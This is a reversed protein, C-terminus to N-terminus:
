NGRAHGRGDRGGRSRVDFCSTEEPGETAMATDAYEQAKPDDRRRKSDGTVTAAVASTSEAADAKAKREAEKDIQSRFPDVAEQTATAGAAAATASMPTGRVPEGRKPTSPMPAPAVKARAWSPSKAGGRAQTQKDQPVVTYGAQYRQLHDGAYQGDCTWDIWKCDVTNDGSMLANASEISIEVHASRGRVGALPTEDPIVLTNVVLGCQCQNQL